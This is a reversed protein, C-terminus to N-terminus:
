AGIFGLASLFGLKRLYPGRGYNRIFTQVNINGAEDAGYIRWLMSGLWHDESPRGYFPAQDSQKRRQRSFKNSHYRGLRSFDIEMLHGADEWNQWYQEHNFSALDRPHHLGIHALDAKGRHRGEFHWCDAIGDIRCEKSVYGTFYHSGKRKSNTSIGGNDFLLLARKKNQRPQLLHREFFKLLRYKDPENDFTLDAAIEANSLHADDRNAFYEIFAARPRTAEIRQVAPYINVPKSWGRVWEGHKRVNLHDCHQELTARDKTSLATDIM